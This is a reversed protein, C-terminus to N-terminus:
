HSSLGEGLGGPWPGPIGQGERGRFVCERELLWTLPRQACDWGPRRHVPRMTLVQTGSGERRQRQSIGWSGVPITSPARERPGPRRAARLVQHGPGQGVVQRTDQLGPVAGRLHPGVVGDDLDCLM